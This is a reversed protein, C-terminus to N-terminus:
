PRMFKDKNGFTKEMVTGFVVNKRGGTKLKKVVGPKNASNTGVLHMVLNPFIKVPLASSPPLALEAALM